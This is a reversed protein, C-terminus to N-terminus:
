AALGAASAWLAQQSGAGLEDEVYRRLAEVDPFALVFGVPRRLTKAEGAGALASQEVGVELLMAGFACAREAVERASGAVVGMRQWEPDPRPPLSRRMGGGTAILDAGMFGLPDPRAAELLARLIPEAASAPAEQVDAVWRCRGPALTSLIWFEGGAFIRLWGSAPLPLHQRAAQRALNKDVTGLAVRVQAPSPPRVRLLYVNGPAGRAWREPPNWRRGAKSSGRLRARRPLRPPRTGCGCAQEWRRCRAEWFVGWALVRRLRPLLRRCQRRLWYPRCGPCQPDDCYSVVGRLLPRTRHALAVVQRGCAAPREPWTPAPPPLRLALDQITRGFPLTTAGCEAQASMDPAPHEDLDEWSRLRPAFVVPAVPQGAPRAPRPGWGQWAQALRDLLGGRQQWAAVRGELRRAADEGWGARQLRQALGDAAEGFALLIAVGPADAVFPQIHMPVAALGEGLRRGVEALAGPDPDAPLDPHIAALGELFDKGPRRGLRALVDDLGVKCSDAAPPLILLRARAERSVLHAALRWFGTLAQFNTGLDSDGVVTTPRGAWDIAGLSPALEGREANRIWGYVGPTGVCPLGAFCASTAKAEGETVWLPRRADQLVEPALAPPPPVYLDPPVGPPSLYKAPRRWRLSRYPQDLRIRWYGQPYPILIGGGRVPHGTLKRAEEEGVSRWGLLRAEDM